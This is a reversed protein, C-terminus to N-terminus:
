APPQDREAQRARREVERETRREIRGPIIGVALDADAMARIACILFCAAGFSTFRDATTVRLVEGSPLIYAALASIVSRM